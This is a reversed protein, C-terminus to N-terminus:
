RADRARGAVWDWIEDWAARKARPFPGAHGIGSLGYDSPARVVTEAPANPYFGLMVKATKETAVPDDAYVWSRIPATVGEFDGTRFGERHAAVAERYYGPRHCWARWPEVVGRPLPAGTWGGGRKLYGHRALSYRGWGHWFWLAMPRYWAAHDGWYGSGVCVFAHAACREPNDWLGAFHGGVSHGVHVVPGGAEDAVRDLAAPTDLRGWDTYHMDMAALDAPASGGVGRADFTLVVLGRGAGEEAFARYFSRKFGTGATILAGGRPTGDPRYLTAALAYGDRARLTIDEATM